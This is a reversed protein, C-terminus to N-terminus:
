SKLWKLYAKINKEFGHDTPEYFKQENLADPLFQQHIYGKEGDHSYKYDEGFGLSKAFTNQASRLAKPIPLSGTERVTKQAKKLGMYSRNSKPASALYTVVQALNIAAEPLGVFEVAQAGALATELARPEANGIDESALIVLRRAIFKPDEGGELMRALYYLGANPDSGRISKIFASICDYHEDGQKDYGTVPESLLTDMAEASVPFSQDKKMKYIEFLEELNNLLQRADGFAKQIFQKKVGEDSFLHDGELRLSKLAQNLILNLDEDGLPEFVLVKARSLLARNLEYSPNETTAGILSFHGKEMFPLLVDQQAKNLRHIEDIFLLTTENKEIRDRKAQDGIEKLRKAGTDVANVNVFYADVRRAILEALTTKGTGPPGWFIFHPLTTKLEGNLIQTLVPNKLVNKQGFFLIFDEPRLRDALPGTNPNNQAMVEFLDM